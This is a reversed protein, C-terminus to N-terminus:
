KLVVSVRGQAAGRLAIRQEALAFSLATLRLGSFDVRGREGLWHEVQATLGAKAVELRQTLAQDAMEQLRQRIPEYLLALILEADPHDSDFGYDLDAFRIRGTGPDLAPRGRLELRGPVEGGIDAMLVLRDGSVSLMPNDITVPVGRVEVTQGALRRALAESLAPVSLDLALDFRMDGGTPRFLTLPPLPRSISETDKSTTITPRLAIGIVTTLRHGEGVPPALGLGEPRAALWLGPVLSQPTQLAAWGRAASTRLDDLAPALERLADTLAERMRKEFAQEVLSSVDIDLATVECRDIFRTPLLRFAPRLTWDPALALRIAVGILAQRPPEQVGCGASIGLDGILDKRAEARYRVHAQVLLVDGRLNLVLPGRWAQYRVKLGHWDRWGPGGTQRPVLAEAAAFAPSLDLEVPVELLSPRQKALAASGCSAVLLLALVSWVTLPGTSRTSPPRKRTPQRMLSPGSSCAPVTAAGPQRFTTPSRPADYPGLPMVRLSLDLTGAESSERWGYNSCDVEEDTWSPGNRQECLRGSDM